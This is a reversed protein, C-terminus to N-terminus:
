QGEPRIAEESPEGSKESIKSRGKTSQKGSSKNKYKNFAERATKASPEGQVFMTTYLRHVDIHCDNCLVALNSLKNNGRNTDIHHIILTRRNESGCFQCVHGYAEFGLSRYVRNHLVEGEKDSFSQKGGSGIGIQTTPIRRKRSEMVLQSTRKRRCVNCLVRDKRQSEYGAGCQVCVRPKKSWSNAHSWKGDCSKSCFRSKPTMPQYQEGCEECVRPDANKRFQDARYHRRCIASCTIQTTKNPVFEKECQVCNLKTKM